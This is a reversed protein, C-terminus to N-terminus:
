AAQTSFDPVLTRLELRMGDFLRILGSVDVSSLGWRFLLIHCRIAILGFTFSLRHQFLLSGLEPRDYASTTLIVRLAADVRDFDAELLSLYGRFAQVRERRLRGAMEPTFGEQSRLSQLDANDLLHLMPRYRDASLESLWDTTVPLVYHDRGLHRVLILVGLSLALIAAAAVTIPLTM